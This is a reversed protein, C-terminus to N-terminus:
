RGHSLGGTRGIRGPFSHPGRHTEADWGLPHPAPPGLPGAIVAVFKSGLALIIPALAVVFSWFVLDIM